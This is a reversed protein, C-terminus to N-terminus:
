RLFLNVATEKKLFKCLFYVCVLAYIFIQVSLISIICWNKNYSLANMMGADMKFGDFVDHSAHEQQWWKNNSFCLCDLVM